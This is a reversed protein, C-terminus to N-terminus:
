FHYSSFEDIEAHMAEPKLAVGGTFPLNLTLIVFLSLSIITALASVMLAHARFSTPAFFYTFAISILGGAILVAWLSAPIESASDRIRTRRDESVTSVDTVANTIFAGATANPVRLNRVARWLGNLADDTRLGERQHDAMAVWEVNVVSDAYRMVAARLPEGQHGLAVGDRYLNGVATAENGVVNETTGFQEWVIVVVFGLLVAYIVGVIAILFGAVDHNAQLRSLEVRRRVLALGLLSITVAFLVLGIGLWVTPINELLFSVVSAGSRLRPERGPVLSNAREPLDVVGPPSSPTDQAPHGSLTLVLRLLTLARTRARRGRNRRGGMGAQAISLERPQEGGLAGPQEGPAADVGRHLGVDATGPTTAGTEMRPSAGADLREHTVREAVDADVIAGGGICERARHLGPRERGTAVDEERAALVPRSRCATIAEERVLQRM